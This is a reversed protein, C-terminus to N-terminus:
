LNKLEILPISAQLSDYDEFSMNIKDTDFRVPVDFEFGATVLVDVSPATDFTVIGTETNITWGTLQEVAGLGVKVTGSVPKNITRSKQYIGVTYLKVLQFDVTTGNGIGIQIDLHSIPVQYDGSKYDLWDKYRFGYARGQAVHFFAVVIDLNIQSVVSFAADYEHRPLSWVVNRQEKGSHSEAITTKYSPGGRSGYSIAEPFRPSEIFM